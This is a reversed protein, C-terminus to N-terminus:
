REIIQARGFVGRGDGKVVEIAHGLAQLEIAVQVDIGDELLLVGKDLDFCFRPADIAAQPNLKYILLNFILQCHGQPQM